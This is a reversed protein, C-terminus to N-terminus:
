AAARQLAKIKGTLADSETGIQKFDAKFNKELRELLKRLRELEADFDGDANRITDRVKDGDMNDAKGSAILEACDFFNSLSLRNEAKLDTAKEPLEPWTAILKDIDVKAAGMVKRAEAARANYTDGSLKLEKNTKAKHIKSLVDDMKEGANFLYAASCWLNRTAKNRSFTNEATAVRTEGITALSAEFVASATKATLVIAKEKAM